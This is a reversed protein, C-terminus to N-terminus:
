KTQLVVLLSDNNELETYHEINIVKFNNNSIEKIDNKTYYTFRLQNDFMLEERHEGEWLTMFLIGNPNLHHNQNKLSTIFDERTFHQLVKNSFICDFKEDIDMVIADLLRVETGTNKVKYDEIFLPSNDTGLVTYKRSLLDLDLGAGMGLELVSAGDTLYKNLKDMIWSGDYGKLM